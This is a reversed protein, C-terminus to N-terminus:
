PAAQEAAAVHPIGSSVNQRYLDNIENFGDFTLYRNADYILERQFFGENRDWEDYALFADIIRRVNFPSVSDFVADTENLVEAYWRSHRVEWYWMDTPDYHAPLSAYGLKESAEDAIAHLREEHEPFKDYGVRSFGHLRELATKKDKPSRMHLRGIELLNGRYHVTTRDPFLESYGFLIWRGHQKTSNRDLIELQEPSWTKTARAIFSHDAPLFTSLNKVIRYDLDMVQAWKTTPEEGRLASATTYTMSRFQDRRSGAMALMTRSDLGGSMSMALPTGADLLQDLQENWLDRVLTLRQEHDLELAGNETVPYYRVIDGTPLSLRHNALLPRIEPHATRDWQAEGRLESPFLPTYDSLEPLRVLMDYHSCAAERGNTYYISRTACADHYITTTGEAHVAIAYRGGLDYLAREVAGFGGGTFLSLIQSSVSAGGLTIPGTSLPCVRGIVAVWADGDITVDRDVIRDIQLTHERLTVTEFHPLAELSPAPSTSLYFGRSYLTPNVDPFM